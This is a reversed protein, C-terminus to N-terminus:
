APRIADVPLPINNSQLDAKFRQAIGAFVRAHNSRTFPIFEYAKQPEGVYEQAIGEEVLLLPRKGYAVAAGTEQYLWVSSVYNGSVLAARRTLLCLFFRARKIKTLIASRFDELGEAKGEFATFGNPKLVTDRVYAVLELDDANFQQGIFVAYPDEEQYFLVREADPFRRANAAEIGRPTLQYYYQGSVVSLMGHFVKHVYEGLELWRVAADIEELNYQALLPRYLGAITLSNQDTSKREHAKEDKSSVSFTVSRGQIALLIDLCIRESVM